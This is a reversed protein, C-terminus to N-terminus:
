AAVVASGLAQDAEASALAPVPLSHVLETGLPLRCWCRAAALSSGRGLLTEIIAARTAPTGLGHDRAHSGCRRM